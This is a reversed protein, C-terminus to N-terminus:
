SKVGKPEIGLLSCIKEYAPQGAEIKVTPVSPDELSFTIKENTRRYQTDRFDYSVQKVDDYSYIGPRGTWTFPVLAIRRQKTDFAVGNQSTVVEDDISFGDARLRDRQKAKWDSHIFLRAAFFLVVPVWGLLLMWNKEQNMVMLTVMVGGVTLLVAAGMLLEDGRVLLRELPTAFRYSHNSM